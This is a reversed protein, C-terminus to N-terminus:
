SGVRKRRVIEFFFFFFFFCSRIHRLLFLPREFVKFISVCRRRRRRPRPVFHFILYLSIFKTPCQQVCVIRERCPDDDDNDDDRHRHTADSSGVVSCPWCCCCCCLKERGRTNLTPCRPLSGRQENSPPPAGKRYWSFAIRTNAIAELGANGVQTLM